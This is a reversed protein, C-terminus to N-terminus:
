TSCVIPLLFPRCHVPFSFFNKRAEYRFLFGCGHFCRRHLLSFTLGGHLINRRVVLWGVHGVGGRQM